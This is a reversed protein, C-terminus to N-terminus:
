EPWNKPKPLTMDKPKCGTIIPEDIRGNYGKKFRDIEIDLLRLVVPVLEKSNKCQYILLALFLVIGKLADGKSVGSPISHIFITTLKDKSIRNTGKEFNNKLAYLQFYRGQSFLAVECSLIGKTADIITEDNNFQNIVDALLLIASELVEVQSINVDNPISHILLSAINEKEM